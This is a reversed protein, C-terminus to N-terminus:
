KRRLMPKDNRSNRATKAVPASSEVQQKSATREAPLLEETFRALYKMMSDAGNFGVVTEDWNMEKSIVRGADVDFKITGETLQQVLQSEIRPDNVPTLVETKVSITAVGTQVKKLTYNKRIKVKKARGDPLRTRLESPEYWRSGAKVPKDPLLMVIGGVGFKENAKSGEREVIEGKASITVTALPVGVTKAVQQYETPIETDTESNYRVEPRDSLQQWMNVNTVTHSFTFNGEADVDSVQWAKTSVSRSKSTQTNGQIKTETTGLHIVKWEVQEGNAFQYRLLHKTAEEEARAQSVLCFLSLCLLLTIKM